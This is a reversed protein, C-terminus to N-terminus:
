QLSYSKETKVNQNTNNTNEKNKDLYNDKNNNEEQNEAIEEDNGSVFSSIL